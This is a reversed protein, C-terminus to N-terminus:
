RRGCRGDGECIGPRDPFNQAVQILKPVDPHISHNAYPAAERLWLLGPARVAFGVAVIIFLTIWLLGRDRKM